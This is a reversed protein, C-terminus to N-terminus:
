RGSSAQLLRNAMLTEEATEGRSCRGDEEEGHWSNVRAEAAGARRAQDLAVRCLRGSRVAQASSRMTRRRTTISRETALTKDSHAPPRTGESSTWLLAWRPPRKARRHTPPRGSAWPSRRKTPSAIGCPQALVPLGSEKWLTTASQVRTLLPPGSRRCAVTRAEEILGVTSSLAWADAASPGCPLLVVDSVIIASHDAGRTRGRHRRRGVDITTPAAHGAEAAVAVWTSATGQPYRSLRDNM